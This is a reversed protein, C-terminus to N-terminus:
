TTRLTLEVEGKVPIRESKTFPTEMRWEHVVVTWSFSIFLTTENTLVERKQVRVKLAKSEFKSGRYHVM